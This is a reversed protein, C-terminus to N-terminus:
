ARGDPVVPTQAEALLDGYAEAPSETQVGQYGRTGSDPSVSGGDMLDIFWRLENYQANDVANGTHLAFDVPRGGWRCVSRRRRASLARRYRPSAPTSGSAVCRRSRM